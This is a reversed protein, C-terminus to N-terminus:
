TQVYGKNNQRYRGGEKKITFPRRGLGDCLAELGSVIPSFIASSSQSRILPLYQNARGGAALIIKKSMRFSNPAGAEGGVEGSCGQLAPHKIEVGLCSPGANPTNPFAHIGAGCELRNVHSSAPPKELKRVRLASNKGEETCSRYWMRWGPYCVQIMYCSSQNATTESRDFHSECGGLM